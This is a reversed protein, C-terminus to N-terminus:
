WGGIVNCLRDIEVDDLTSRANRSGTAETIRALLAGRCVTHPAQADEMCPPAILEEEYSAPVLVM